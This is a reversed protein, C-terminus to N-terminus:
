PRRILDVPKEKTIKFIPIASSVLGTLLSAFLIVLVQRIGFLAFPLAINMVNLIYSNVLVCGIAAVICALVGNIISIILSESLFMRLIDRAGSGLGRLVGISQRKNVISTAIYNFLMFVSFTALVLAVILFLDAGQKIVEENLRITSLASNNYWVLSLGEEALMSSVLAGTGFVNQKPMVMFRSYEGQETYINLDKMIQEDMMFRYNSGPSMRDKDVGVYIGVVTVNKYTKKSTVSSTKTITITKERDGKPMGFLSMLEEAMARKEDLTYYREDASFASIIERARARDTISLNAYESGFISEINSPYVLVEDNGLEIEGSKDTLGGEFKIVNGLSFEKANYAYLNGKRSNSTGDVAITWDCDGGFYITSDGSAKREAEMRGDAVFLCKYAGSNIFTKYDEVLTALSKGAVTKEKLVSYKEPIAGCDVLGVIVFEKNDINITKDLLDDRNEIVKDNLKIEGLYHIISDALYTSIAIERMSEYTPSNSNEYVLQPYRGKVLKYGFTKFTGDQNIEDKSFEVFGTIAKTYYNKGWSVDTVVLETIAHTNGRVYGGTNDKYDYIGKTALGTEISIEDLKEQSLKLEYSDEKDFDVVYEGYLSVPTSTNRLLNTMVSKTNFNALTDFLGFVAFAVVSLLITFALRLPKVGLSKVGLAVSSQLKMKSKKFEVNEEKRRKIKSEDTRVAERFALQKIIEIKKCNKVADAIADKETDTLISGEKIMVGNDDQMVNATMGNETFTIDEAVKGDVLKIIRDAYREAFDQDHSVVIVLKDKSLKKLLEFVQEGTNSDLAGTPEDAMIIRPKKVLARAIAVRQRQGGSLESPKRNRLEDIEVEKLLADLEEKDGSRGQLELAIEINKEVTFESLLNYEQFIFGIFTNRYDDYDGQTFSFFSKGLLAIEGSDIGDLGGIVNLLTTKGCGSKGSIFVLGTEPFTLSVGDLANVQGSKTKYVKTVNKLELM